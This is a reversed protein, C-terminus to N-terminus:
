RTQAIPPFPLIPSFRAGAHGAAAVSTEREGRPLPALHENRLDVSLLLHGLCPPRNPIISAPPEQNGEDAALIRAM